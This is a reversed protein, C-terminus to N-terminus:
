RADRAVEGGVIALQVETDLFARPEIAFLDQSLVILDAYKGPTISGRDHECFNAFASGMTYAHITTALDLTQETTWAGGGELDARTMATYMGVLPDMEAVNWDSSFALTAGREHLSRWPAAHAEREPGVAARWDVGIDPAFHRPQMCAVVGLEAFRPLDDPHVLEVHVIQHRADKPGNRERARQVADLVTRIGRDGTAHTFTQFGRAELKPILDIFDEPPYFTNGTTRAPTSYPELVAATHPEIVDDIYLKLPGARLRDDDYVRAAAAFEELDADTTTPPHFLAAILRSALRGEERARAFLPLDDPSNQPEVITTIGFGIAMELSRCMREYRRADSLGPLVRSLAAQGDRSIGMVAFDGILGTLEGTAPDREPTGYPLRRAGPEIGLRRMAERNLVLNHVDYTFMTAPRGGTVDEGIDEARPMRGGPIAAYNLGEAEVWEADPHEALWSRIRRHVEELSTAGALQVAGADSGLRVHNHADVIGPLVLAGGADIVETAPGVHEDVDDDGVWIIREGRVAIAEARPLSPDVTHVRANRIVLDAATM